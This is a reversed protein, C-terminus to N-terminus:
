YGLKKLLQNSLVGAYPKMQLARIDTTRPNTVDPIGRAQAAEPLLQYINLDERLTGLGQGPVGRPYAFHGSDKIMPQGAFIEGINQIGGEQAALQAPDSVALRAGGINLGGENRFNTDMMNKIAKRAKDPANRFQKVSEPDSVGKWEPIWEKISKDLTRKTKKNMAADAYALMTEGTMSAFDGGTPAMRWPIHLPNQGTKAKIEAAQELLSKVPGQGSTWVQGPNNFMFDQGAQLEVPRNFQVGEVGVLKGGGATRDAMSTIFPRGEFDALSVTLANQAGPNLEVDRTLANLRGQEKVRPDYRPDFAGFGSRGQPPLVNLQMGTRTMYNEAMRAAQPALERAGAQLARGGIRAAPSVFPAVTLAAEAVDPRLRLTQGRGTTLADGYSMKDLTSAIAPAGMFRAIGQAQQTREPSFTAAMLDAFAGIYPNREVAQMSNQKPM